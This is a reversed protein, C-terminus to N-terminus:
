GCLVRLDVFSGGEDTRGPCCRGPEGAIPTTPPPLKRRRPRGTSFLIWPIVAVMNRRHALWAHDHTFFPIASIHVGFKKSSLQNERAGTRSNKERNLSRPRRNGQTCKRLALSTLAKPGGDPHCASQLRLPLWKTQWKECGFPGCSPSSLPPSRWSTLDIFDFRKQSSITPSPVQM